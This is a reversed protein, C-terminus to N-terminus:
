AMNDAVFSRYFQSLLWQHPRQFRQYKGVSLYFLCGSQEPALVQIGHFGEVPIFGLWSHREKVGFIDAM